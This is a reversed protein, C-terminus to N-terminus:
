DRPLPDGAVWVQSGTDQGLYNTRGATVLTGGVVSATRLDATDAARRWRRRGYRDVGVVASDGVVLAGAPRDVLATIPTESAVRSWIQRGRRDLALLLGRASADGSTTVGGVLAGYPRPLLTLLRDMGNGGFTHRWRERGRDDTALVVADTLRGGDATPAHVHGVVTYGGRGNPTVDSVWAVEPYRERWVQEGDPGTGLLWTAEDTGATEHGGLVVGGEPRRCVTELPDRAWNRDYSRRWQPEGDRDLALLWPADNAVSGAVRYGDDTRVLGVPRLRSPERIRRSWQRNGDPAYAVLRMGAEASSLVVVVGDHGAVSDVAEDNEPGGFQDRWRDPSRDTLLGATGASALASLVHRRSPM